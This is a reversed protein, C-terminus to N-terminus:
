FTTKFVNYLFAFIDAYEEIQKTTPKGGGHGAKTEIRLLIPNTGKDNAQLTAAFKMAHAPVVRDDHDATTILTPPYATGKKVNHLPSYAYMFKFHEPNTEANGYEGTWFHGVTFKHFRLMDTVPVACLAAGFLDPRQLLCAGVLLGGNSGGYIALRQSSTYRDAVLYEAAAIFDDFVNQKKELMGAKHWEEGYESGGRLNALAFVGGNELWALRWAAFSPLMSATFGGYGFLITPNAGDRSLGKRHTIFMPVRTGDKSRYFIQKTEYQTFDFNIEPQRFTSLKESSFNYRFITGPVIFSAFSFFMEKDGREGSIGGISGLTPLDVNRIFTGSLRYLKLESHADRLYSMVFMNNVVSASSLVEEQQPIIEKWRNRGPNKTDIAIIRGRPADLDTRFYFTDGDNEIFTYRADGDDLLRIFPTDANAKRYYVRNQPNTGKFVYLLLYEGDDTMVPAYILGKEAPQEFVLKDASQPTGLKHWCVKMLTEDEKPVSGPAPYRNYYFGKNDHTWAISSFKCWQLLDGYDTNTQLNRIHIEQWDSGSKSLGYALLTGDHSYSQGSLAVTGDASLGNPDIVVMAEGGLREQMYIVSQNQLGDNKSFFYRSGRKFPVSYRPYNWLETLRNRIKGRGPYSRIYDFTLKNQADIWEKLESSSEDEMWRYPDAVMTGHYNEVTDVKRAPPYLFSQSHVNEVCALIAFLAVLLFATRTKM